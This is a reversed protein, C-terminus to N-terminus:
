DGYFKPANKEFEKRVREKEQEYTRGSNFFHLALEFSDANPNEKYFNDLLEEIFNNM